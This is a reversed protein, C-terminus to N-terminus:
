AKSQKAIIDAVIPFLEDKKANYESTSHLIFLVYKNVSCGACNECHHNDDIGCECIHPTINHKKMMNYAKILQECTGFNFGLNFPLISPVINANDCDDFMSEYEAIKTYTWFKVNPNAKVIDHWMTAYEKQNKTAFDGSAHIRVMEINDAKIQALIANKVFDIHQEVLLQNAALMNKVSPMNYFGSKAYCNPCDCICTGSTGAPLSFTYCKEGVKSNGKKLLPCIMGIPSLIKGSKYEINHASYINAKAM